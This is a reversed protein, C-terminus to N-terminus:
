YSGKFMGGRNKMIAGGTKRRTPKKYDSKKLLLKEQLEIPEGKRRSATPGMKPMGM